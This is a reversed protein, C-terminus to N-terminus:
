DIKLNVKFKTLQFTFLYISFGLNNSYNISPHISTLFSSHLSCLNFQIIFSFTLLSEKYTIFIIFFCIPTWIGHFGHQPWHHYPWRHNPWHHHPWGLTIFSICSPINIQKFIIIKKMSYNNKLKKVLFKKSCLLSFLTSIFVFIFIVVVIILAVGSRSKISCGLLKLFM